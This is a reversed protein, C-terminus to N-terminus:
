KPCLQIHTPQDQFIDSKLERSLELRYKGCCRDNIYWLYNLEM